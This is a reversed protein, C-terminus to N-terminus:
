SKAINGPPISLEVNRSLERSGCLGSDILVHHEDRYLQCRHRLARFSIIRSWILCSSWRRECRWVGCQVPSTLIHQVLMLSEFTVIGCESSFFFRDTTSHLVCVMRIDMCKRTRYARFFNGKQFLVGVVRVGFSSSHLEVWFLFVVELLSACGELSSSSRVYVFFVAVLRQTHLRRACCHPLRMVFVRTRTLCCWAGVVGNFPSCRVPCELELYLPDAHGTIVRRLPTLATTTLAVFAYTYTIFM